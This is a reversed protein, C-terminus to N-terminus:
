PSSRHRREEITLQVWLHPYNPTERVAIWLLGRYYDQKKQYGTEEAPHGFHLIRLDSDICKYGAARMKAEVGEHV